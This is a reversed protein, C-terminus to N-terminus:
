FLSLDHPLTEINIRSWKYLYHMEYAKYENEKCHGKSLLNWKLNGTQLYCFGLPLLHIIPYDFDETSENTGDAERNNKPFTDNHDHEKAPFILEMGIINNPDLVYIKPM